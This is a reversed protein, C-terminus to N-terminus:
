IWNGKLVAYFQFDEPADLMNTDHKQRIKTKRQIGISCKDRQEILPFNCTLTNARGVQHTCESRSHKGEDLLENRPSGKSFPSRLLLLLWCLRGWFVIFKWHTRHGKQWVHIPPVSASSPPTTKLFEHFKVRASALRKPRQQLKRQTQSQRSNKKKEKKERIWSAAAGRKCVECELTRRANKRCEGTDKRIRVSKQTTTKHSHTLAPKLSM